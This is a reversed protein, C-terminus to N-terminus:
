TLGASFIKQHFFGSFLSRDHGVTLVIGDFMKDSLKLFIIELGALFINVM